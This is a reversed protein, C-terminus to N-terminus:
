PEDAAIRGLAHLGIGLLEAHDDSSELLASAVVAAWARARRWTAADYRGALSTVFREHGAADFTLWATALDTAPDGATTDGLDVVARLVDHRSPGDQDDGCGPSRGPAVVLNAPHLDGHLTVPPGSWAPAALGDEFAAGLVTRARPALGDLRARVADARQALPVGRVPNAPADDPAPVHLAAVFAGLQAAWSARAAVPTASAPVGEFWPVVAWSWPYGLAASPRGARVPAPVPVPLTPAIRPLVALEHTVLAAAMARRPVRVALDTGLRLVVNDWGHAVVRLPLDALDPHQEALLARVLDPTVDVEAVPMRAM